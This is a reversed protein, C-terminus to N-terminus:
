AACLGLAEGHARIYERAEEDLEEIRKQTMKLKMCTARLSLPKTNSFGYLLKIVALHEDTLGCLALELGDLEVRNNLADEPTDGESEVLHIMNEIGKSKSSQAIAKVPVDLSIPVEYHRFYMAMNKESVEAHAACEAITPMRGHEAMFGPAFHRARRLATSCATPLRILRDYYAVARSMSQNVWFWAYTSFKYGRTPDFKQIGRALGIAGEQVLDDAELHACVMIWKNSVKALLRLNCNFFKNFARRGRRVVAPSPNEATVWRQVDTALSIEQAPTLLPYRTAQKMYWDLIKPQRIRCDPM